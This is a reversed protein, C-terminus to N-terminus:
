CQEESDFTHLYCPPSSVTPEAANRDFRVCRKETVIADMPVDHPQPYITSLHGQEFGVGITLPKLRYSALTRDYYGGGNGLRHGASDFGLLPVLLVTPLIAKRETPVPINGIGRTMVEGAHWAWFELPHDKEVVVPLAADAGVTILDRVMPRLDVEGKIPFYFGIDADALQGFEARLQECIAAQATRRYDAAIRLREAVLAKRRARRWRQIESWDHM